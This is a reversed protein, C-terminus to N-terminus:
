KANLSFNLCIQQTDHSCRRRDRMGLFTTVIILVRCRIDQNPVVSIGRETRRAVALAVDVISRLSRRHGNWRGAWECEFM